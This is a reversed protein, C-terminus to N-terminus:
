RAGTLVQGPVPGAPKVARWTTAVPVPTLNGPQPKVFINPEAASAPPYSYTTPTSPTSAYASTYTGPGAM